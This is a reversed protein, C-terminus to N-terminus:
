SADTVAEKMHDVVNRQACEAAVAISSVIARASSSGHSIVTVGKIGLLLAGGTVDPDYLSAAQLFHPLLVEGAARTEENIDIVSFVMKALSRLAGELSKLAINGTFGDTIIVDVRDSKMFDSGEVNGVFSPLAKELLPYTNRRLEDGKGKESGVSLLGVRPKDVGWRARVYECAMLAYQVLREPAPDLVAGADVLIQSHSGAVPIPVAIAPSPVGKFRGLRLVAATTVAGTNGASVVASARGDKVANMAQVISSDKKNRVAAIPDEGMEIEEKAAFFEVGTPLNGSPLLPEVVDDRGVLLVNTDLEKVALLAGAVIETPAHDGGMADVAILPRM